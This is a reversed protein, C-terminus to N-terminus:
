LYCVCLGAAYAAIDWPDYTGTIVIAARQSLESALGVVFISVAAREPSHGFWRLLSPVKRSALGRMVIYYWPPFALDALYNTLFGAHVRKISLAAGIVWSAFLTWYAFRWIM